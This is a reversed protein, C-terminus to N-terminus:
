VSSALRHPSTRSHVSSGLKLNGATTDSDFSRALSVRVIVLAPLINVLQASAGFFVSIAPSNSAADGGLIETMMFMLVFISYLASSELLMAIATNCRNVLKTGGMVKLHRRTWWIRGATLGTLLLNTSVLSFSTVVSSAPDDSVSTTVIGFITTFLLLVLPPGIVQRKYRSESWIAYCRYIFFSEAAFNNALIFFDDSVQKVQALHQISAEIHQGTSVIEELMATSHLLRLLLATFVVQSVMQGIAFVCLVVMAGILIRRGANSGRRSLFFCAQVNLFLSCASKIIEPDVINWDSEFVVSAMMGASM